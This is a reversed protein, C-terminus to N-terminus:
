WVVRWLRKPRAPIESKALTRRTGAHISFGRPGTVREYFQKVWMDRLPAIAQSEAAIRRYHKLQERSETAIWRQVAAPIKGKVPGRGVCTVVPEFISVPLKASREQAKMARDRRKRDAQTSQELKKERPSQINPRRSM